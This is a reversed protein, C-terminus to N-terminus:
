RGMWGDLIADTTNKEDPTFMQVLTAFIAPILFPKLVCNTLRLQTCTQANNFGHLTRLDPSCRNKIGVSTFCREKALEIAHLLFFFLNGSQM